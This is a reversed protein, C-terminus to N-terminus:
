KNLIHWLVAIGSMSPVTRNTTINVRGVPKYGNPTNSLRRANDMFNINTNMPENNFRKVRIAMIGDEKNIQEVTM